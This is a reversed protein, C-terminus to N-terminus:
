CGLIKNVNYPKMGLVTYIKYRQVAPDGPFGNILYPIVFSFHINYATASAQNKCPHAHSSFLIWKILIKIFNKIDTLFIINGNGKPISTTRSTQCICGVYTLDLFKDAKPFQGFTCPRMIYLNHYLSRSMHRQILYCGIHFHLLGNTHSRREIYKPRKYCVNCRSIVMNSCGNASCHCSHASSSEKAVYRRCLMQSKRIHIINLLPDNSGLDCGMCSINGLANRSCSINVVTHCICPLLKIPFSLIGTSEIRLSCSLDTVATLRFIVM